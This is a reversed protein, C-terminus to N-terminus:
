GSQEPCGDADYCWTFQRDSIDSRGLEAGSVDRAIVEQPARSGDVAIVAGGQGAEKITAPGTELNDPTEYFDSTATRGDQGSGNPANPASVL